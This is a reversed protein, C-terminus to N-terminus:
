EEKVIEFREKLKKQEKDFSKQHRNRVLCEIPFIVQKGKRLLKVKRPSHKHNIRQFYLVGVLKEPGKLELGHNEKWYKLQEAWEKPDEYPDTICLYRRYIARYKENGQIPHVWLKKKIPRPPLEISKYLETERVQAVKEKTVELRKAVWNIGRRGADLQKIRHALQEERKIQTYKVSEKEERKELEQHKKYKEKRKRKRRKRPM